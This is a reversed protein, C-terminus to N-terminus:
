TAALTFASKRNVGRIFPHLKATPMGAPSPVTTTACLLTRSRGAVSAIRFTSRAKFAVGIGGIASSTFNCVSRRCSTITSCFSFSSVAIPPSKNFWDVLRRALCSSGCGILWRCVRRPPKSPWHGSDGMKEPKLRVKVPNRRKDPESRM